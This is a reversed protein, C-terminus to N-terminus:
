AFQISSSDNDTGELAKSLVSCCDQIASLAAKVDAGTQFRYYPLEPRRNKSESAIGDAVATDAATGDADARGNAGPPPLIRELFARMSKVNGYAFLACVLATFERDQNAAYRLPIEVPDTALFEAKSCAKELLLLVRRLEHM